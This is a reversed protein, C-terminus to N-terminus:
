LTQTIEVSITPNTPATIANMMPNFEQKVRIKVKLKNGDEVLDNLVKLATRVQATLEDITKMPTFKSEM